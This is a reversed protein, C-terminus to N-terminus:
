SSHDTLIVASRSQGDLLIKLSKKLQIHNVQGTQEIKQNNLWNWDIIDKDESFTIYGVNFSIINQFFHAGQSPDVPIDALPCEVITRAGSIQGWKVPIGLWPDSSGWRGPGILM